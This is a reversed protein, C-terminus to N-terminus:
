EEGRKQLGEPKQFHSFGGEGKGEDLKRKVEKAPTGSNAAHM